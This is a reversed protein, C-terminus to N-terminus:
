PQASVAPSPGSTRIATGITMRWGPSDGMAVMNLMGTNELRGNAYQIKLLVFSTDVPSPTFTVTALGASADPSHALDATTISVPSSEDAVAKLGTTDRAALAKLYCQVLGVQQGTAVGRVRVPWSCSPTGHNEWANWALDAGWGIAALVVLVPLVKLLRRTLAAGVAPRPLDMSGGSLKGSRSPADNLRGGTGARVAAMM